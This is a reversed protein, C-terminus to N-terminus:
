CTHPKDVGKAQQTGDSKPMETMPAKAEWLWSGRARQAKFTYGPPEGAQSQPEHSPRCPSLHSQM